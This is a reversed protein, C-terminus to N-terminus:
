KKIVQMVVVLAILALGIPLISGLAVGGLQQGTIGLASGIQGTAPNYVLRTGPIVYPANTGAATQYLKLANAASATAANLVQALTQVDMGAGSVPQGTSPDITSGGPLTIAINPPLPNAALITDLESLQTTDITPPFEIPPLDIPPQTVDPFTPVTITTDQGLGHMGYYGDIFEGGSAFAPFSPYRMGARVRM